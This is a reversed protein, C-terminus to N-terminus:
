GVPGEEEYESGGAPETQSFTSFSSSVWGWASDEEVWIYFWEKGTTGKKSGYCAYTRGPYVVTVNDSNPDANKRVNKREGNTGYEISVEGCQTTGLPSVKPNGLSAPTVPGFSGIYIPSSSRNIFGRATQNDVTCEIYWWDGFYTYKALIVFAEGPDLRAFSTGPQMPNDTVLIEQAATVPIYDFQPTRMKSQFGSVYRPPIYGVRVGGNNTEYRVLLWGSFFGAESVYSNTSCSAKGNACRYANESPATYVPCNGYGIGNEHNWFKFTPASKLREALDGGDDTIITQEEQTTSTGASATSLAAIAIILILLSVCWRKLPKNM